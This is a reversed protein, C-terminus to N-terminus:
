HLGSAVAACGSFQLVALNIENHSKFAKFCNKSFPVM